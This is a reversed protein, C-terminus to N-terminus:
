ALSQEETRTVLAADAGDPGYVLERAIRIRWERVRRQLTRLKGGLYEGYGSAQSGKLMETAELDPREELWRLLVPWVEAFPDTRTRWWRGLRPARRHTLRVEGDGWATALSRV